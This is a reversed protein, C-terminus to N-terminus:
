HVGFISFGETEGVIIHNEADIYTTIDRWISTEGFHQAALYLDILNILDDGNLDCFPDWMPHGPYSGFARLIMFLDRINVVGDVNVDGLVLDTQLLQTPDIETEGYYIRITVKGSFTATVQVDWVPGVFAQAFLAASGDAPREQSPLPPYRTTETATAWGEATVLEFLLSVRPDPSVEVNEGEPIYVPQGETYARASQANLAAVLMGISVMCLLAAFAIKRRVKEGEQRM